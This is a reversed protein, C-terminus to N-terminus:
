SCRSDVFPPLNSSAITPNQAAAVPMEIGVNVKREGARGKTNWEMGNETSDLSFLLLLLLSLLAVCSLIYYCIAGYADDDSTHSRVIASSRRLLSPHYLSMFPSLFAEGSSCCYRSQGKTFACLLLVADFCV